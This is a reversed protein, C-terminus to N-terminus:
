CLSSCITPLVHCFYTEKVMFFSGITAERLGPLSFALALSLWFAEPSPWLDFVLIDGPTNDPGSTVVWLLLVM